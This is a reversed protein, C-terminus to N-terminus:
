CKRSRSGLREKGHYNRDFNGIHFSSLRIGPNSIWNLFFM